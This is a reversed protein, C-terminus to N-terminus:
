NSDDLKLKLPPVAASPPEKPQATAQPRASPFEFRPKFVAKRDKLTSETFPPKEGLAPQFTPLSQRAPDARQDASKITIPLDRPAATDYNFESKRLISGFFVLTPKVPDKQSSLTFSFLIVSSLHIAFSFLLFKAMSPTPQNSLLM